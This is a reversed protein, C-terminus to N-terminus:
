VLVYTKDGIQILTYNSPHTGDEVDGVLDPNEEVIAPYSDPRFGGGLYNHSVFEYASLYGDEENDDETSEEDSGFDASEWDDMNFDVGDGNFVWWHAVVLKEFHYIALLDGSTSGMTGIICQDFLSYAEQSSDGFPGILLAGEEILQQKENETLINNGVFREVKM